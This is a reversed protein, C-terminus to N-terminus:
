TRVRPASSARALSRLVGDLSGSGRWPIVPIGRDTLREVDRRHELRQLRWALDPTSDPAAPPRNEGLSDVVIVSHGARAIGVPLEPRALDILPSIVVVMSRPAIRGLIRHVPVPDPARTPSTDVDVLVDLIRELHRRGTAPPVIRLSWKTDLLGVRDGSHLYHEAISAAARVALDLSGGVANAEAGADVSSDVVLMVTADLDTVTATVHLTGTRLSVPWNIRKLRDGVQFPRIGALDTGEGRRRSRHAGVLGTAVPLADSVSFRERYPLVKVASGAAEADACFLGQGGWAIVQALGVSTRSWRRATVVFEVLTEVGGAPDPAVVAAARDPSGLWEGPVFSVTLLDTGAPPTVRVRAYTGQDEFLTGAAGRLRVRMPGSGPRGLHVLLWALLPAALAVLDPRHLAIGGFLLAGGTGAACFLALTPRWVGAGSGASGRGLPVATV